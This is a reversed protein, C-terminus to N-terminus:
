RSKEPLYWTLQFSAAVDSHQGPQYIPAVWREYQVYGKAELDNRIRKVASVQFLNQTTGGPIFDIPVKASRWSLQVQERPSLHYTLWAQGGKAERGIVDGLIFGKNTYGQKQIFETFLYAGGQSRGTPPDTDAAEVRLDLHPAGPFHSLYLGPRIAAHRPADIPSVDDHVSSDSYLTV